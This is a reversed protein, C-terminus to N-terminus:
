ASFLLKKGSFPKSTADSGASNEKDGSTTKSGYQFPTAKSFEAFGV